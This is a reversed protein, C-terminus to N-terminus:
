AGARMFPLVYPFVGLFSAPHKFRWKCCRKKPKHVIHPGNCWGIGPGGNAHLANYHDEDYTDQQAKSWPAFLLGFTMIHFLRALPRNGRVCCKKTNAEAAYTGRHLHSKRDNCKDVLALGLYMYLVTLGPVAFYMWYTHGIPGFDNLIPCQIEACPSKDEATVALDDLNALTTASKMASAFYENSLLTSWTSEQKILRLVQLHFAVTALSADSARVQISSSALILAYVAPSMLIKITRTIAVVDWQFPQPVCCLGTFALKQSGPECQACLLGTHNARCFYPGTVCDTVAAIDDGHQRGLNLCLQSIEDIDSGGEVQATNCRISLSGLILFHVSLLTVPWIM